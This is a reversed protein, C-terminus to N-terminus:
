TWWWRARQDARLGMAQALSPSLTTGSIGLWTHEYHGSEILAPVVKQVITSPIAFGIGASARVPSEIASTVGIVQSQDNVLVGGSNGPNIPADTQIVDPITYTPGQSSGDTVPLSRALASVFGVTMTNQEGFPNGIAIALEGVKVQASDGMQVPQLRDAPMDVKVVALDSQPDTGIVTGPVTTGDYFVVAINDAGAVVHNNTVIHGEKDWVFGSGLAQQYQEQPGQPPNGFFFPFGPIEPIAPFTVEQKQVVRITVVSPNVQAYIHELTAELDLVAGLSPATSVIPPTTTPLAATTAQPVSAAPANCAALALVAVSVLTTLTLNRKIM